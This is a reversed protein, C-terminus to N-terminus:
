MLSGTAWRRMWEDVVSLAITRLERVSLGRVLPCYGGHGHDQGRNQVEHPKFMSSNFGWIGPIHSSAAIGDQWAHVPPTGLLHVDFMHEMLRNFEWLAQPDKAFHLLM